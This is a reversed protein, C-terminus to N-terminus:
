VAKAKKLNRVFEEPPHSYTLPAQWYEIDLGLHNQVASGAPRGPKPMQAAWLSWCGIKEKNKGVQSLKKQRVKEDLMEPNQPKGLAGNLEGSQKVSEWDVVPSRLLTEMKQMDFIKGYSLYGARHRDMHPSAAFPPVIPVRDSLKSLYIGNAVALFQNTFGNAM